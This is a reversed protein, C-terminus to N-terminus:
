GLTDDDDPYAYSAFVADTAATTSGSPSSTTAPSSTAPSTATATPAPPDLYFEGTVNGIGSSGSSGPANPGGVTWVVVLDNHNDVAASSKVNGNGDTTLQISQSATGLSDSGYTAAYIDQQATAIYGSQTSSSPQLTDYYNTWSVDFAGNGGPLAALGISDGNSMGGTPYAYTVGNTGVVTGFAATTVSIAASAQSAAPTGSATFQRAYLNSVNTGGGTIPNPQEVQWAVVFDGTQPDIALSNDDAIYPWVTVNPNVQIVGGNASGASTYRQAYIYFDNTSTAWTGSWDDWAVIFNGSSDVAISGGGTGNEQSHPTVESIPKGVATDSTSTFSYRQVTLTYNQNFRNGRVGYLVDFGNDNMAVSKLQHSGKGGVVLTSGITAGAPSYLQAYTAYNPTSGGSTETSWVAVFDGNTPARAVIFSPAGSSNAVNSAVSITSALSLTGGSNTYPQISLNWNGNSAHTSYAAVADGAGDMAVARAGDTTSAGGTTVALQEGPTTLTGGSLVRRDELCDFRLRRKNLPRRGTKQSAQRVVNRRSFGLQM